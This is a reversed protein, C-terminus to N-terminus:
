FVWAGNLLQNYKAAETPNKEALGKAPPFVAAPVDFREPRRRHRIVIDRINAREAHDPLDVFFMEDFRGKRLFEPPLRSVDNATAVVFVPKRKEQMWSLFGGFVRSSVGGDTFSGARRLLWAKLLDLGGVDGLGTRTEVVEVLGNRKLTRAKERAIVEPSLSATEVVSLAFANEAETTTLGLAAQLSLRAPHHRRHSPLRGGPTM